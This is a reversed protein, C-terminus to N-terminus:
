WDAISICGYEINLQKCAHFVHQLQQEAGLGHIRWWWVKLGETSDTAPTTRVRIHVLPVEFATARSLVRWFRRCM